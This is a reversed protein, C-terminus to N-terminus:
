ARAARLQHRLRETVADYVRDRMVRPPLPRHMEGIAARVRKPDAELQKIFVDFWEGSHTVQGPVGMM